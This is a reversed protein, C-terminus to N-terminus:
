RKSQKEWWFHAAFKGRLKEVRAKLLVAFINFNEKINAFKSQIRPIQIQVRPKKKLLNSKM